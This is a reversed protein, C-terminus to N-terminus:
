NAYAVDVDNSPKLDVLKSIQAMTKRIHQVYDKNGYGNYCGLARAINGANRDVCDKLISFGVTLNEEVDFYNRVRFKSSHYKLNVQMLGTNSGNKANIRFGSEVSIISLVVVPNIQNDDALKFVIDKIKESDVCNKKCRSKVYDDFTLPQYTASKQPHHSKHISKAFCMPTMVFMLALILLIRQFM